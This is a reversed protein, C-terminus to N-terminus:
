PADRCLAVPVQELPTVDLPEDLQDRVPVLEGRIQAPDDQGGVGVAHAEM